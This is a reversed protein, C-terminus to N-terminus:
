HAHAVGTQFVARPGVMGVFLRVADVVHVAPALGDHGEDGVAMVAAEGAHGFVAHVECPDRQLHRAVGPM